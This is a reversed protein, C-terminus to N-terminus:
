NLQIATETGIQYHLALDYDFQLAFFGEMRYIFSLQKGVQAQQTDWDTQQDVKM